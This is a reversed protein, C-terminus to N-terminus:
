RGSGSCVGRQHRNDAGAPRTSVGVVADQNSRRVRLHRAHVAVDRDRACRVARAGAVVSDFDRIGGDDRGCAHRGIGRRNRQNSIGGTCGCAIQEDICGGTNEGAGVHCEDGVVHVNEAGDIGAGRGNVNALINVARQDCEAACRGVSVRSGVSQSEASGFQAVDGPIDIDAIGHRAVDTEVAGNITCALGDREGRATGDNTLGRGYGVVDDGGCERQVGHVVDTGGAVREFYGVHRVEGEGDAATDEDVTVACGVDGVQVSREIGGGIGFGIRQGVEVVDRREGSGAVAGVQRQFLDVHRKM